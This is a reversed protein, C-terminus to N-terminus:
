LKDGKVTTRRAKTRRKSRIVPAGFAPQPLLETPAGPVIPRPAHRGLTLVRDYMVIAAAIGVNVCFKTPIKITYSCRSLLEPSLQGREPGLVYAAARPHRFSPLEIADDLLEVGVLSCERPLRLDNASAYEFLPVQAVAGSTDSLNGERRPYLAGITFLFSAGFAHASRMVSGMNMAKSIGEVGIGFYGRMPTAQM